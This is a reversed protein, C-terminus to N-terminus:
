GGPRTDGVDTIYECLVDSEMRAKLRGRRCSGVTLLRTDHLSIGFGGGCWSGTSYFQSDGAAFSHANFHAPQSLTAGLPAGFLGRAFGGTALRGDAGDTPRLRFLV